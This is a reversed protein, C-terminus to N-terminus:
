ATAQLTFRVALFAGKSTSVGGVARLLTFSDVREVDLCVLNTHTTGMDDVVTVIKGQYTSKLTAFLTGAAANNDVDRRGELQFTASKQSEKRFAHGDVGPRTVDELHMGLKQVQGKFTIFNTSTTGDTISVM